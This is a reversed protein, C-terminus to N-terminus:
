SLGGARLLTSQLRMWHLSGVLPVSAFLQVLDLNSFHTAFHRSFPLAFSRPLLEEIFHQTLALILVRDPHCDPSVDAVVGQLTQLVKRFMLLDGAFRCRAQTGADDVLQVLWSLGPFAGQGLAAIRQNVIRALVTEDARSRALANIAQQIRSRDLTLAGMLIQTLQVRDHKTLHGVLSWDLIALRGEPTAFLNGAHPDAHFFSPSEKSWIPRAVLAKVMANALTRRDAASLFDADTAKSGRIRQMATLRSTSFDYVEPVVISNWGTFAERAARMHGQERDLCVERSLLTKVQIFADEYDIRPLQYAECREDLLAGIRQLLDLEEELKSEIGPKLLKLVGDSVEGSNRRWRFPVVIAVSAEALPPEDIDIGIDSLRGLEAEALRRAGAVNMTSPTSELNQLLRRLGAPLRRDRAIVQGLKHLAPCHRAIAVLREGIATSAPMAAQEALIQVARDPALNELFYRIGDAVAPRYREYGEPVLVGFDLAGLFDDDASATNFAQQKGM